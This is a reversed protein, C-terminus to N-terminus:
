AAQDREMAVEAQLNERDRSITAVALARGDHKFRLRCDGAAIDGEAELEDWKEAYGVYNIQIDYHRSWFFPVATYKERYGLMNRAATQGQREAVVWHEVRIPAGGHPNPWRAIDGAAFVNPASTQLLGDVRVGRELAIGSREALETRPKVGIGAIIFDADLTKGESLTVRGDQVAAAKSGLHFVVGRREHLSRIFDGMAAGLVREFPRGEPAIVHVDIDRARLAAAVELGIFSAGLVVVRKAGKAREVIVQCDAFSRLTLVNPGTSGPFDPRVPEAGTALLLRDFAVSGGGVLSVTGDQANIFEVRTGLRLDIDNDEYFSQPRLPMWEEQAQGALYDKSLNPRDYPARDDDSFLTLTGEFRQRRLMEAAAFGAAGGGVIVIRNPALGERSASPSSLDPMEAVKATVFIRDGRREVKWRSIPDFAPAHLAEGTRISFCAHHLPCRITEGVLLGRALRGGYHTCKGAVAHIQDGARALVVIEKGVHGELLGDEGLDVIPVGESLDPGPAKKAQTTM